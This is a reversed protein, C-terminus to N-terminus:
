RRTSDNNSAMTRAEIGDLRHVTVRSGPMSIQEPLLISELIHSQTGICRPLPQLMLQLINARVCDFGELLNSGLENLGARVPLWLLAAISQVAQYPIDSRKPLLPFSWAVEEQAM